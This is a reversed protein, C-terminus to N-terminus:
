LLPNFFAGQTNITFLSCWLLFQETTLHETDIHLQLGFAVPLCFINREIYDAFVIINNNDVFGSVQNHM